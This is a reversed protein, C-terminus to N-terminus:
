QLTVFDYDSSRSSHLPIRNKDKVLELSYGCAEAIRIFKKLGVDKTKGSRIDQIATPSLGAMEALKRISKKDDEMLALMLESLAFEKFEEDYAKKFDPDQMEREFTTLIKAKKKM